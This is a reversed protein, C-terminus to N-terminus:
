PSGLLTLGSYPLHPRSKLTYYATALHPICSGNKLGKGASVWLRRPQHLDANHSVEVGGYIATPTAAIIHTVSVTKLM